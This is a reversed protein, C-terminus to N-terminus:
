GLRTLAAAALFFLLSLRASLCSVAERMDFCARTISMSWRRGPAVIAAMMFAVAPLLVRHAAEECTHDVLLEAQGQHRLLGSLLPDVPNRVPGCRALALRAALRRLAGSPRM